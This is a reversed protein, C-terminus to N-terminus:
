CCITNIDFLQKDSNWNKNLIMNKKNDIIYINTDTNSTYRKHRNALEWKILKWDNKNGLEYKKLEYKKLEYKKLEHKESKKKDNNNKINLLYNIKEIHTIEKIKSLLIKDNSLIYFVDPAHIEIRGKNNFEEFYINTLYKYDHLEILKAFTDLMNNNFRLLGENFLEKLQYNSKQFKEFNSEFSSLIINKDDETPKRYSINNNGHFYVNGYDYDAYNILWYSKIEEEEKEKCITINNETLHNYCKYNDLIQFIM